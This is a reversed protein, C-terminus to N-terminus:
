ENSFDHRSWLLYGNHTIHDINYDLLAKLEDAEVCQQFEDKYEMPLIAYISKLRPCILANIRSGKNWNSILKRRVNHSFERLVVKEFPEENYQGGEDYCGKKIYIESNKTFKTNNIKM